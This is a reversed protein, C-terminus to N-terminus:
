SVKEADYHNNEGKDVFTARVRFGAEGLLEEYRARGLSICSAGTNVDTWEHVQTPATFLFRGGPVIVHGIRSILAGQDAECLLFVL